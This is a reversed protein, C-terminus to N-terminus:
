EWTRADDYCVIGVIAVLNLKKESEDFNGRFRESNRDRVACM